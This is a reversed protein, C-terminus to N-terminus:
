KGNSIIGFEESPTTSEYLSIFFMFCCGCLVYRVRFLCKKNQKIKGVEYNLIKGMDSCHEIYSVIRFVINKEIAYDYKFYAKYKKHLNPFVSIYNDM